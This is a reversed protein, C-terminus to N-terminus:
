LSYIDINKFSCYECINRMYEATLANSVIVNLINIIINDSYKIDSQFFNDKRKDYDDLYEDIHIKKMKCNDKKHLHTKTNKSESSFDNNEIIKIDSLTMKTIQQHITVDIEILIKFNSLLAAFIIDNDKGDIFLVQRIKFGKKDRIIKQEISVIINDMSFINKVLNIFDNQGYKSLTKNKNYKVLLKTDNDNEQIVPNDFIYNIYDKSQVMVYVDHIQKDIIVTNIM